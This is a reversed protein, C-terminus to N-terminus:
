QVWIEDVKVDPKINSQDFDYSWENHELRFYHKGIQVSVRGEIESGHAKADPHAKQIEAWTTGVKIGTYDVKDSTIYINSIEDKVEYNEMLYGLQGHNKDSINWVDFSGEGTELIDKELVGGAELESIKGGISVAMKTGDPATIDMSGDDSISFNDVTEPITEDQQEESIQNVDEKNEEDVSGCSMLLLVLCFSLLKFSKTIQYKEM